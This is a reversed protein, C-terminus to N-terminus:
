FSLSVNVGGYVISSDGDDSIAEIADEADDSLPFTYAVMPGVSIAETVPFSMSASIEGNYFDSFEDGDADTGMILNEANYSVSAGLDLALDKPLAISHGISAVIFAGEGEDFDYYVTLAPSLITDYGLSLYVEQTDDFGDFAYYIYGADISVKDISLAYNLTVDTETIEDPGMDYNAWMNAGFGGYTIGVSPQIVASNSLKQGRWVYNSMIDASASGSTEAAGASVPGFAFVATLVM